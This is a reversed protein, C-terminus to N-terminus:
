RIFEYSNEDSEIELMQRLRLWKQARGRIRRHNRAPGPTARALAFLTKPSKRWNTSMCTTRRFKSERKYTEITKQIARSAHACQSFFFRKGSDYTGCLLACPKSAGVAASARARRVASSLASFAERSAIWRRCVGSFRTCIDGKGGEVARREHSSFLNLEAIAQLCTFIM